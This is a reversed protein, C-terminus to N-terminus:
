KTMSKVYEEILVRLKNKENTTIDDFNSHSYIHLIYGLRNIEDILVICRYGGSKGKNRKKDECRIKSFNINRNVTSKYIVAYAPREPGRYIEDGIENAIYTIEKESINKLDRKLNYPSYNGFQEDIVDADIVIKYTVIKM